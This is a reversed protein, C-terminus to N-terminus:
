YPSGVSSQCPHQLVMDLNSDAHLRGWPALDRGRFMTMEPRHGDLKVEAVRIAKERKLVQGNSSAFSVCSSDSVMMIVNVSTQAFRIEM